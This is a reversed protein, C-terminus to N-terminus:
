ANSPLDTSGPTTAGTAKHSTQTQELWKTFLSEIQMVNQTLQCWFPRPINDGIGVYRAYLARGEGEM